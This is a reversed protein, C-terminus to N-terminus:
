IPVSTLKFVNLNTNEHSRLFSIKDSMLNLLNARKMLMRGVSSGVSETLLRSDSLNLDADDKLSQRFKNLISLLNVVSPSYLLKFQPKNMDRLTNNIEKLGERICIIMVSTLFNEFFDNRKKGNDNTPSSLNLKSFKESVGNLLYRLDMFCSNEVTGYSKIINGLFTLLSNRKWHFQINEWNMEDALSSLLIPRDLQVQYADVDYNVWAPDQITFPTPNNCSFDSNLETVYVKVGVNRKNGNLHVAPPPILTTFSNFKLKLDTANRQSYFECLDHYNVNVNDCSMEENEVQYIDDRKYNM